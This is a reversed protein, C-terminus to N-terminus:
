AALALEVYNDRRQLYESPLPAADAGAPVCQRERGILRQPRRARTMSMKWTLLAHDSLSGGIIKNSWFNNVSYDSLQLALQLNKQVVGDLRGGMVQTATQDDAEFLSFGSEILPSINGTNNLHCNFDGLILTPDTADGIQEALKQLQRFRVLGTIKSGGRMSKLHVVVVTFKQGSVSDYLDLRLAPRLDPIGFIGTIQPYEVCKLVELRPHLLFGVAQGRSNATSAFYGYGCARGIISLAQFNVEEVALLHHCSLVERYSDIFYKAKFANLFLMNWAGILLADKADSVKALNSLKARVESAVRKADPLPEAHLSLPWIINRNRLIELQEEISFENIASDWNRSTDAVLGATNVGSDNSQANMWINM